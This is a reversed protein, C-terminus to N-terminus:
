ENLLIKESNYRKFSFYLLLSSIVINVLFATLLYSFNVYGQIALKFSFLSGVVPIFMFGLNNMIKTSAFMLVMSTIIPIFQIISILSMATKNNKSFVFVTIALVSLFFSVSLLSLIIFIISSPKFYIPVSSFYKQNILIAILFGLFEMSLSIFSFLLSVDIKARLITSRKTGTTFLSELTNKEKEAIFMESIVAVSGFALFISIFTPVLSNLFVDNLGEMKMDKFTEQMTSLNMDVGNIEELSSSINRLRIESITLSYTNILNAIKYACAYSDNNGDDYLIVVKIKGSNVNSLIDKDFTVSVDIQGSTFAEIENGTEVYIPNIDKFITNKIFNFQDNYIDHKDETINVKGKDDNIYLAVYPNDTKNEIGLSSSNRILLTLFIPFLILPMIISLFLSSSSRTVAKIEKNFVIKYQEDM